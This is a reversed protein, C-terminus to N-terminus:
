KNASLGDVIMDALIELVQPYNNTRIEEKHNDVVVLANFLALTTKRDIDQRFEGSAQWREINEILFSYVLSDQWANKNKDHNTILQSVESNRYWEALIPNQKSTQIITTIFQKIIEKPPQRTDIQSVIKYKAAENEAQYVEYFIEKKSSYYKYFTGVAVNAQKTIAAINTKKFGQELFLERAAAFLTQEKDIQM